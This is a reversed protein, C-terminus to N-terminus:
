GVAEETQTNSHTQMSRVLSLCSVAALLVWYIGISAVSGTNHYSWLAIAATPSGLLQSGLAYGFSIIVYRCERPVLHQAWAHFPAFFAVGFLVFMLRVIVVTTMSAGELVSLLPITFIVVCLSVAIMLWERSTKSSLWGFFPLALLDVVLLYSNVRMVEAHSVQSIMPIVGNMLVLAMSYTVHAFGACIVVTLFPFRYRWVTTKIDDYSFGGKSEVKSGRPLSSRLLLGFVATICGLVYLYRWGTEVSWYNVVCYVGLSAMLHGGITTTSYLGSLLDHRREPAKELVYIAGGMTEGAAFFNQILRASSFLVPALFGIQMHTPILAICGSVLAMGMLSLFLARERGYLDGVFGFFLAGLPRMLMGLPIIAYTMILAIIPEQHPFLIPAIMPSLFGFLATDYHEFLNGLCASLFTRYSPREM